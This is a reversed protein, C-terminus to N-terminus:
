LSHDDVTVVDAVRVTGMRRPILTQGFLVGGDAARRYSSLTRLPEQRPHKAGNDPDITTFVCRPCNEAGDFGTEGVCISRWGDEAYAECGSVIVNPRFRAMSVSESLRNNLDALSAESILLLPYGDAFSVSDGTRSYDINVPRQRADGMYVLHCRSDLLETFWTDVAAEASLARCEDGWVTVSKVPASEAPISIRMEDSDPAAITLGEEDIRSRIQTLIPFERGTLCGGNEDVVMWRRDMALGQAEVACADMSIGATSKIPYINIGTVRINDVSDTM